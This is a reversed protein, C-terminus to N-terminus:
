INEEHVFLHFFLLGDFSDKRLEERLSNLTRTLQNEVTKPTIGMERAIQKVPKENIKREIFIQKRREPLRSILLDLKNLLDQYVISSEPQDDGGTSWNLLERKYLDTRSQKNFSRKIFNLAITFLYSQFSMGTKIAERNNWIKFFVEEVIDEADAESKLYSLSFQYLKISYHSFLREFAVPDSMRLRQILKKEDYDEEKV